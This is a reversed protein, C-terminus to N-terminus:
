LDIIPVKPKRYESPTCGFTKKFLTFFHADSLFQLEETIRSIPIDTNGLLEKAYNMKIKNVYQTITCGFYKRFIRTLQSYSYPLANEADTLEEKTLSPNNLQRVFDKLEDPIYSPSIQQETIKLILYDFVIKCLLNRRDSFTTNQAEILLDTYKEVSNYSVTFYLPEKHYLIKDYMTPDFTELFTKMFGDRVLVCAGQFDNKKDDPYYLAHTDAPGILCADGVNLLTEAGNIKQKIQGQVVLLIEWDTHKHMLPYDFNIWNFAVSSDKWPSSGDFSAYLSSETFKGRESFRKENKEMCFNYCALRVSDIHLHSKLLTNQPLM